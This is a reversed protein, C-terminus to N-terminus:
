SGSWSRFGRAKTAAFRAIFYQVNRALTALKSVNPSMRVLADMAAFITLPDATKLAAELMNLEVALRM